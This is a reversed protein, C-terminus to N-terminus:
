QPPNESTVKDVTAQYEPPHVEPKPAEHLSLRQELANIRDALQAIAPRAVDAAINAIEANIGRKLDAYRQCIHFNSAALVGFIAGAAFLGCCTLADIM